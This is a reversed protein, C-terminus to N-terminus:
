PRKGTWRKVALFAGVTALMTLVASIILTLVIGVGYDGLLWAITDTIGMDSRELLMQRALTARNLQRDTLANTM